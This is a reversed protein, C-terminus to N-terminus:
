IEGKLTQSPAGVFLASGVMHETTNSFLSMISRGTVKHECDSVPCKLSLELHKEAVHSRQKEAKVAEQCLLCREPEQVATPFCEALDKELSARKEDRM